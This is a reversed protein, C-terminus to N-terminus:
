LLEEGNSFACVCELVGGAVALAKDSVTFCASADGRPDVDGCKLGKTVCVGEHILGRIVGDIKATMPVGGVSGVVDGARVTDTISASPIFVGDAPACLLRETTYGGIEGPIGTNPAACGRTIVRGLDHGRKTEIVAHCCEGACFGPGLCIVLAADTIATGTNRKAILADVLIDPKYPLRETYVPIAGSDLIDRMDGSSHAYVARVGEVEASGDYVAQSFAVTRRVTLPMPLEYMCIRRFGARWLRSAVGTAIDGAGKIFILPSISM